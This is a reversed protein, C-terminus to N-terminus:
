IKCLEQKLSKKILKTDINKDQNFQKRAADPSYGREPFKKGYYLFALQTKNFVNSILM